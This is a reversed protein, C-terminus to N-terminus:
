PRPLPLLAARPTGSSLRPSLNCSAAEGSRVPTCLRRSLMKGSAPHAPLTHGQSSACTPVPTDTVAGFYSRPHLPRNYNCGRLCTESPCNARAGRKSSGNKTTQIWGQATFQLTSPGRPAPVTGPLLQLGVRSSSGDERAFRKRNPNIYFRYLCPSSGHRQKCLYSCEGQKRAEKGLPRLPPGPPCPCAGHPEGPERKGLSPPFPRRQGKGEADVGRQVGPNGLTSSVRDPPLLCSAQNSGRTCSADRGQM